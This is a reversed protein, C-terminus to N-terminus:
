LGDGFSSEMDLATLCKRCIPCANASALSAAMGHGYSKIIANRSVVTEKVMYEVYIMSLIVGCIGIYVNKWKFIHPFRHLCRLYWLILGETFIQMSKWAYARKLMPSAISQEIVAKFYKEKNYIAIIYVSFIIKVVMNDWFLCIAVTALAWHSWFMKFCFFLVIVAMIQYQFPWYVVNIVAFTALILKERESNIKQWQDISISAVPAHESESFLCVTNFLCLVSWFIDPMATINQFSSICALTISIHFVIACQCWVAHKNLFTTM